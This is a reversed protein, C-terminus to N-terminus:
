GAFVTGYSISMSHFLLKSGNPRHPLPSGTWVFLETMECSATSLSLMLTPSLQTHSLVTFPIDRLSSRGSSAVTCRLFTPVLYSRPVRVLTWNTTLGCITICVVPKLAVSPVSAFMDNTM